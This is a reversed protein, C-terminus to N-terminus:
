VPRAPNIPSLFKVLFEDQGGKAKHVRDYFVKVLIGWEVLKTQAREAIVDYDLRDCELVDEGCAYGRFMGFAIDSMGIIDGKAATTSGRLWRTRIKNALNRGFCTHLTESAPM